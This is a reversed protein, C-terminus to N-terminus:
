RNLDAFAFVEPNLLNTLMVSSTDCGAKRLINAAGNIDANLVTGDSSRYLGRQIRKGSFHHKTEDGEAYVPIDDSDLFSAKSTYSEENRVVTVGYECTKLEIMSKLMEFPISVFNQNNVTGISSNQKWFANSGLVLCGIDNRQCWVLLKRSMKHFCDRIYSTRYASLRDLYKSWVRETTEKGKSMLSIREAKKKMFYQNVSKIFRGKFLISKGTDSVVAMTNDVGFDVAAAHRGSQVSAAKVQYVLLLEYGGSVPKVKIEMLRGHRRRVPIRIKTRPLKLKGGYIVADQNTFLYSATDNRCYGPMKPKGTHGSPDEKYKKLSALWGKFDTCVQRIVHQATQMPLGSFFDPNDTVRFVHEVVGKELVYYSKQGKLLALEDRVEKENATLAAKNYATFTNRVRFLAANHLCKAKHAFDDLYAYLEHNETVYIRDTRYMFLDEKSM